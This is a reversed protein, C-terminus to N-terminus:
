KRGFVTVEAKGKVFETSDYWFGVRQIGRTGSQIDIVASEGNKPIAIPSEIIEEEGSDYKIVLKTIKLATDRVTVKIKKFNEVPKLVIEDHDTNHMAATTGMIQWGGKNKAAPQVESTKSNLSMVIFCCVFLFINKKM